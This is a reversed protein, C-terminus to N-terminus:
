TGIEVLFLESSENDIDDILLPEIPIPSTLAKTVPDSSGLLGAMRNDRLIPITDTFCKFWFGGNDNSAYFFGM